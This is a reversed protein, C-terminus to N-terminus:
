NNTGSDNNTESLLSAPNKLSKFNLGFLQVGSSLFGQDYIPTLM